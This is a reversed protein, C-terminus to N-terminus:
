LEADRMHADLDRGFEIFYLLICAGCIVGLAFMIWNM